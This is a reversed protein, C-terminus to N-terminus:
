GLLNGDQYIDYISWDVYWNYYDEPFEVPMQITQGPAVSVFELETSSIEVDSYDCFYNKIYVTFTYETYNTYALYYAGNEDQQAYTGWFQDSLDDHVNWWAEWYAKMSESTGLVEQLTTDTAAYDYEEHLLDLVAYREAAAMNWYYTFEYDDNYWLTDEQDELAQLYMDALEGLREDYFPLDWYKELLEWEANIVDEYTAGEVETAAMRAKLAAELDAIFTGDGCYTLYVALLEDYITGEYEEVLSWASSYWENDLYYQLDEMAQALRIEEIKAVSDKYDGLEEFLDKADYYEGNELWTCAQDYLASYVAELEIEHDKLVDYLYDADYYNESLLETFKQGLLEELKAVAEAQESLLGYLEMVDYYNGDDLWNQASQALLQSVLEVAVEEKVIRDYLDQIADYSYDKVLDEVHEQLIENMSQVADPYGAAAAYVRIAKKYSADDMLDEFEDAAADCIQTELDKYDGLEQHIAVAEDIDGDDLLRMAEKYQSSKNAAIGIFIGAVILVVLVPIGIGLILGLKGKKKPANQIEVNTNEM